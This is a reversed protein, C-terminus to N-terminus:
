RREEDKAEDKARMSEEMDMQMLTGILQQQFRARVFEEDTDEMDGEIVQRTKENFAYAHYLRIGGLDISDVRTQWEELNM